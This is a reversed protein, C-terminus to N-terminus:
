KKKGKRKPKDEEIKVVIDAAKDKLEKEIPDPAETKPDALVLMRLCNVMKRMDSADAELKAIREEVTQQPKECKKDKNCDGGCCNEGM